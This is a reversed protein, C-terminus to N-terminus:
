QTQWPWATTFRFNVTPNAELSLEWVNRDLLSTTDHPLFGWSGDREVRLECAFGGHGQVMNGRDNSFAEEGGPHRHLRRLLGPRRTLVGTV